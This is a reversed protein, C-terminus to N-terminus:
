QYDCVISFSGPVTSTNHVMIYYWGPRPNGILVNEETDNQSNPTEPIINAWMNNSGDLQYRVGHTYNDPTPYPTGYSVIMDQNTEWDGTTMYIGVKFMNSPVNCKYYITDTLPAQHSANHAGIIVYDMVQGDLLTVVGPPEDGNGGGDSGGGTSGGGGGTQGAPLIDLTLVKSVAEGTTKDKVKFIVGVTGNSVTPKGSITCTASNPVTDVTPKSVVIGKGESDKRLRCIFDYDGSGGSGSFSVVESYQQGNTAAPLVTGNKFQLALPGCGNGNGDDVCINWTFADAKQCSTNNDTAKITVTVVKGAEAQTPTWTWIFYDGPPLQTPEFSSGSAGTVSLTIQDNTDPDNVVFYADIEEEPAASVPVPQSHKTDPSINPANNTCTQTGSSTVTLSIEGTYPDISMSKLTYNNTVPPSNEITIKVPVEAFIAAAGFLAILLGALIIIISRKYRKTRSMACEKSFIFKTIRDIRYIKNYFM